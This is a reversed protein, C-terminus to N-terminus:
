AGHRVKALAREEVQRVRESSVGLREGIESLKEAPRDFGFRASIVERERDTLRSLLGLLQEGAVTDLVDEYAAASLPDDLLDGLTGLEGEAGAVPEDLSRTSADAALLAEVQRLDTHTLEALEASSPQRHEEGYVRGHEAKLRALQRLAKPPLRLPRFFDSRAEQLAQRVWWTAVAAFPVGRAADFRSLARLLGVCGEQVLDLHELGETRFRRALSNVLPLFRQIVEERAGVEGAQARAVLLALEAGSESRGVRGEVDRILARAARDGRGAVADELREREGALGCGTECVCVGIQVRVVGRVGAEAETSSRAPARDEKFETRVGDDAPM